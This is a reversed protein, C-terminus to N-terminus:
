YNSFGLWSFDADAGEAFYGLKGGGGRNCTDEEVFRDDYYFRVRTGKKDIKLKHWVAGNINEIGTDIWGKGEFYYKLRASSASSEVAFKIKGGAATIGTKGEGGKVYGEVAFGAGSLGKALLRSVTGTTTIFSDPRNAPDAAWGVPDPAPQDTLSPAATVIGDEPTVEYRDLMLKRRFGTQTAPDFIGAGMKAHYTTYRTKLDPGTIWNNNGMGNVDGKTLCILPNPKHPKITEISRGRASHIQYDPRLFHVGSYTMHYYGDLFFIAPAETWGNNGPEGPNIAIGDIVCSTLQHVPGNGSDELSQLKKYRIGGHGCFFMYMDNRDFFIEGDIDHNEARLFDYTFIEYKANPGFPDVDAGKPTYKAGFHVGRPGDGPEHVSWYLYYTGEHYVLDPAMMTNLKGEIPVSRHFRWDVLDVSVWVRFGEGGHPYEQTSVLYFRDKYKYVSPDAIEHGDTSIEVPNRYRRAPIENGADNKQGCSTLVSGLMLVSLLM